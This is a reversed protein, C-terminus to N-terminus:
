RPSRMHDCSNKNYQDQDRWQETLAPREIKRRVSAFEGNGNWIGSSRQDCREVDVVLVTMDRCRCAKTDFNGRRKRRWASRVAGDIFRRGSRRRTGEIFFIRNEENLDSAAM